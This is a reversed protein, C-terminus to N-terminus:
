SFRPPATLDRANRRFVLDAHLAPNGALIGQSQPLATNFRLPEGQGDSVAGGAESVLLAGAAIDWHWTPRLTLMADFQGEAVLALRWALSPRFHRTMDPVGGPWFDPVLQPRAALVQAGTTRPAAVTIPVGNLTAGQGKAAAYTLDLLPLHVVALIPVGGEVVSIVHSFGPQGDMFARTGDIPDVVFVRNRSLRDPTDPTEESLWGYDPHAATLTERLMADIALDADTVPGQGDPKEQVQLGADLYKRAMRGAHKAADLLLALEPHGAHDRGQM